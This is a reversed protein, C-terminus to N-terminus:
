RDLDDIERAAESVSRSLTFAGSQVNEVMRDFIQDTARPNPDVWTKSIIASDYMVSWYTNTHSAGALDRRVAPLGSAQAFASQISNASLRTAADFAGAVNYAVQPIAFGYVQGYTARRETGRVQPLLAVEFNLNPNLEVITEAESAYGFYVSLDGAVFMNRAEPLSRNWSYVRKAPNAFDTYFRLALFGAGAADDGGGENLSVQLKLEGNEMRWRTIPSNAQLILASIIGKVNNINQAEGFAITSKTINRSNDIVNFTSVLDPFEDWYEPPKVLGKNTYMDRNWYMVLPDVAFPIMYLGEPRLFLESVELFSSKYAQEPYWEYPMLTLKERFQYYQGQDLLLLDPQANVAIAELFDSYYTDPTVERYTIHKMGVEGLATNVAASPLTGWIRVPLPEDSGGRGASGDSSINSFVIVAMVAIAIFIAILIYQFIDKSSTDEFPM